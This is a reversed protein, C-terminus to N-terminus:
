NGGTPALRRGCYINPANYRQPLTSSLSRQSVSRMLRFLTNVRRMNVAFQVQYSCTHPVVRRMIDACTLYTNFEGYVTQLPHLSYNSNSLLPKITAAGIMAEAM